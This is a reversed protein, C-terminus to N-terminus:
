DAADTQDMLDMLAASDDLDVGPRPGSGGFTTLDVARRDPRRQRNLVERLADEVVATLSRGTRAALQKAESLLQDDIRITTRM